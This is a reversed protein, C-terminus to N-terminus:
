ILGRNGASMTVQKTSQACTCQQMVMLASNLAIVVLSESGVATM